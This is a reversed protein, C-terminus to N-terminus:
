DPLVKSVDSFAAVLKALQEGSMDAAKDFGHMGGLFKAAAARSQYPGHHCAERLTAMVLALDDEKNIAKANKKADAIGMQVYSKMMWLRSYEQAFPPQFGMRLCAKYEDFDRVYEAIFKDWLAKEQPTPPLQFPNLVDDAM